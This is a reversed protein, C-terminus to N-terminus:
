SRWFAESSGPQTVLAWTVIFKGHAMPACCCRRLLTAEAPQTVLARAVLFTGDAVLACGGRRLCVESSGPQTLLARAPM